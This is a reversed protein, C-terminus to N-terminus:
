KNKNLWDRLIDRANLIGLTAYIVLIFIILGTM